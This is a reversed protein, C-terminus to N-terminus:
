CSGIQNRTLNLPMTRVFPHSKRDSSHLSRDMISAFGANLQYDMAEQFGDDGCVHPM